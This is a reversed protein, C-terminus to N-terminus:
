SENKRLPIWQFQYGNEEDWSVVPRHLARRSTYYWDFFLQTYAVEDFACRDRLARAYRNLTIVNASSGEDRLRQEDLITELYEKEAESERGVWSLASAYTRKIEPVVTHDPNNKRVKALADELM